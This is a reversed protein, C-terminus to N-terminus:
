FAGRTLDSVPVEGLEDRPHVVALADKGTAEYM